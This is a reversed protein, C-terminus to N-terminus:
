LCIDACNTKGDLRRSAGAGYMVEVDNWRRKDSYSCAVARLKPGHLNATPSSGVRSTFPPLGVGQKRELALQVSVFASVQLFSASMVSIDQPQNPPFWSTPNQVRSARVPLLSAFGEVGSPGGLWWGEYALLHHQHKENLRNDVHKTRVPGSSFTFFRDFRFAMLHRGM